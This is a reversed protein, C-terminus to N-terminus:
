YSKGPFCVHCHTDTFTTNIDEIRQVGEGCRLRVIVENVNQKWDVFVDSFMFLLWNDICPFWFPFRFFHLMEECWILVLFILPIKCLSDIFRNWRVLICVPFFFGEWILVFVFSSLWMPEWKSICRSVFASWAMASMHELPDTCHVWLWTSAYHVSCEWSLM